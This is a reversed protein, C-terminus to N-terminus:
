TDTPQLTAAPMTSASATTRLRGSRAAAGATPLSRSRASSSSSAGVTVTTGVSVVGPPRRDARPADPHFSRSVSGPPDDGTIVVVDVGLRRLAEAQGDAHEGVGGLYSWSFPVVIGVKM